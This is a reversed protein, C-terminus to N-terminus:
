HLRGSGVPQKHLNVKVNLRGPLRRDMAQLTQSHWARKSEVFPRIQFLALNNRSFAFEIDAAVPQKISSRPLPFRREVDTALRQLQKIENASLLRDAGTASQVVLGGGEALMLKKPATAQALLIVRGRKREVRLEEAAQGEVAGGVGENTAISLWGRDGSGVDATVMVGSKESAFSQMLLVAPYVHEPTEMHSQRWAFARESFPSAWVRKIADLLADFGIVNAVTLNLGAGNFGPLDEVNTDSRVFLGRGDITGFESILADKLQQRFTKGPEGSVIRERLQALFKKTARSRQLSNAINALRAYEARMWNFTTTNGGDFSHDLYHRFVAFPIVLGDAVKDPYYHALEGLNAAKPGVTRGSDDARIEHLSLLSQDKLNLKDLDATIAVSPDVLAERGFVADWKPADPEISIVGRQSVAVVIHEGVHRSIEKLLSDDAVLNPIGMNRALLQVHSVSSGEGRTIIGAVPTLKQTTSKLIYIGNSHMEEGEEPPLMLVGRRLGPNLARLGSAVKRGFLHHSIGSLRNADALLSDLIRTFPLLPSGRLRDPVFGEVKPAIPLWRKVTDSFHFELSRQTWQPMRALYALGARYDAVSLRKRKVLRDLEAVAAKWQRDSILGTAHLAMSLHRLWDLRTSRSAGSKQSLLQNARAFIDQELILTARLFRLRNYVTYSNKNLLLRRYVQAKKSAVAIAHATSKAGELAAITRSMEKRFKRNGSESVLQQLQVKTSKSVFLRDLDSALEEYSIQLEPVGQSRAYDRVSAADGADPLSHIKVRLDHFNNDKEDIDTAARRVKEGLQVESTIPLLRAAERLLLYRGAKQWASDALMALMIKGAADQEAEIQIAGRYYRARRFVWGDDIQILFREILIQRFDDLRADSGTFTEPAIASFVNAVLYGNERMTQARENWVGHQRGGGRQSCAYKKPPLISGDNCFWRVSEFPGRSELKFQEVWGRYEVLNEDHVSAQALDGSFSVLLLLMMTVLASM